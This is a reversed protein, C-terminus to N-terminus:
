LGQLYRICDAEGGSTWGEDMVKILKDRLDRKARLAAELPGGRKRVLNVYIEAVDDADSNYQDDLRVFVDLVLQLDLGAETILADALGEEDMNVTKLNTAGMRLSTVYRDILDFSRDRTSPLRDSPRLWALRFMEFGVLVPPRGGRSAVASDAVVRLLSKTAEIALRGVPSFASDNGPQHWDEDHLEHGVKDEGGYLKIKRIAGATGGQPDEREVHGWAFSDQLAHLANGLSQSFPTQAGVITGKVTHARRALQQAADIANRRIWDVAEAYAETQSQGDFRRMFHHCQGFDAWHGAIIFDLVDRAVVNAAVFSPALSSFVAAYRPERGVEEVAQKTLKGHGTLTSM